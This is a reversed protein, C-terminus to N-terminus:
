LWFKSQAPLSSSASAARETGPEVRNRGANKAQYLATDAAQLLKETDAASNGAAIGLSLSVNVCSGGAVVSCNAVCSRIREALEWTEAAACGPVVILFEEGGYRGVSDYPRVVAAIESAIIRLVLDGAVHGRSDNVAKFHDVDAMIVGVSGGRRQSRLLEREFIELIAKRNWLGTLGDRSAERRLAKQAEVLRYQTVLLRASSCVFSLLVVAAALGLRERAIHLSMFLVLLPCFLYFIETHIRKERKPLESSLDAPEPQNWTTAIVLPAVLFLSWLLDFWAGTKLNGGPGYYYMADLMGSLALLVGLKGFLSRVASSHTIAARLLFASAVFGYGVFYPAWVSHALEGHAESKPLYFFYLYAAVCILIAQVFDLAVVTDLRGSESESGLFLAMALPAFWFCFLLNSIWQAGGASRSLDTYVGLSQAVFWVVYAAATLRWVSRAMGEANRSARACAVIVLGGLTLQILDSLLPGPGVTGFTTVVGIHVLFLLAAATVINPPRPLLRPM